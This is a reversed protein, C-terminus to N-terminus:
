SSATSTQFRVQCELRMATLAKGYVCGTDLAFVNAEDTVGNLAAWHGFVIKENQIKRCPVKFWPMLEKPKGDLPGTYTFDLNGNADCLRMRTFSNIIFRVRDNGQLNESWKNPADGYMHELFDTYNDSRLVQEAERALTEVQRLNWEPYVGAHVLIYNLKADYHMLPQKRLWNILLLADEAKVIAELHSAEFDVIKNYYNLLHLDHNGLVVIKHPLNKIFRLVELSKPGRNVLDGVFWLTDQHPNFSIIALLECLEDFCGQVDGICYTAM